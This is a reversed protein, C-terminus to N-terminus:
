AVAASYLDGLPEISRELHRFIAKIGDLVTKNQQDDQDLDLM